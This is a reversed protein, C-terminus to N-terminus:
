IFSHQIGSGCISSFIQQCKKQNAEFDINIHKKLNEANSILRFLIKNDWNSMYCWLEDSFSCNFINIIKTNSKNLLGFPIAGFAAAMLLVHLRNSFVFDYDAYKNLDEYRLERIDINLQNNKLNSYIYRSISEDEKVQYIVDIIYGENTLILSIDKLISILFKKETNARFSFAVRKHSKTHNNNKQTYLFAMDPIYKINTLENKLLNYNELSRVMLCDYQSFYKKNCKVLWNKNNTKYDLDIGVAMVKMGLKKAYLYGIMGIIRIILTKFPLKLIAYPGPSKTFHTFGEKKLLKIISFMRISRYSSNYEKAFDKVNNNDLIIHKFYAPMNTCDVYVEGYKAYEEIQLKNIIIDGLNYKCTYANYFIKM